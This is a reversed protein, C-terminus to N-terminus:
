YRKRKRSKKGEQVQALREELVRTKKEQEIARKEQEILYLTLEEVKQLLLTNAEGLGIGEAQVVKASPVDPLHGHKQIHAEVEALPRLRYGPAFVFDAWNSEVKIEKARIRGNVSLRFDAQPTATGIGVNGLHDIVMRQKMGAAYSDTTLFHIKTGYSGSGQILV